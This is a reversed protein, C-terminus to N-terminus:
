DKIQLNILEHFDERSNRVQRHFFFLALAYNLGALGLCISGNLVDTQLGFYYASFGLLIFSWFLVFFLAGPFLKYRLFLISGRPTDEVEGLILPLFTNSRQIVKSIRFTNKGVIGNFAIHKPKLYNSKDLFNVELTKKSIHEMVEDKSYSSVLTESFFPILNM